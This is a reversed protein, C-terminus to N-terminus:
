NRIRDVHWCINNYSYGPCNCSVRKDSYRVTRYKVGNLSRSKFYRVEPKKEKIRRIFKSVLTGNEWHNSFKNGGITIFWYSM